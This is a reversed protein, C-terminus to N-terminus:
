KNVKKFASKVYKFGKLKEKKTYEPEFFVNLVVEDGDANKVKKCKKLFRNLSDYYQKQAVKEEFSGRKGYKDFHTMDYSKADFFAIKM